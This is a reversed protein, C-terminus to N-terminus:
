PKSNYYVGWPSPYTKIWVERPEGTKIARELLPVQERWRRETGYPRIHFHDLTVLANSILFASAIFPQARFWVPRAALIGMWLLSSAVAAPFSWRHIWTGADIANLPGWMVAGSTRGVFILLMWAALPLTLLGLAQFAPQRWFRRVLWVTLGVAVLKLGVLAWVWEPRFLAVTWIGGFWPRIFFSMFWYNLVFVTADWVPPFGIKESREIFSVCILSFVLLGLLALDRRRRTHAARWVFLPLLLVAGATSFLLVAALGLEGRSLGIEPDKLGILAVALFMVWNLNCLNGAVESLGPVLCLIVVLWLRASRAPFLWAYSERAPISFVAVLIAFASGCILTPLWALPAVALWLVTIARQVFHFYGGMPRVISAVGYQLAESVFIQGDEAWLEAGLVRSLGRWLMLITVLVIGLTASRPKLPYRIRPM